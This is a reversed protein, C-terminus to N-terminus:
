NSIKSSLPNKIVHFDQLPWYVIMSIGILKERPVFGWERSDSSNPRNDGMVFYNNLPITVEEGDRLFQGGYTRVGDPLYASEDLKEGDLYVFGERLSVRDGAVGIIRKIYDKEQNPPANFVVVTGREIKGFRLAILNTLVYEGNHYTPYMSQGNVQFPKFLFFYIIAFIAGAIALTEALDLVVAYLKRLVFM